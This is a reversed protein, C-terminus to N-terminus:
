RAFACGLAALGVCGGCIAAVCAAFVGPSTVGSIGGPIITAGAAALCPLMSSVCISGCLTKLQGLFCKGWSHAKQIKLNQDVFWEDSQNMDKGEPIVLYAKYRQNGKQAWVLTGKEKSNKGHIDFLCFVVESRTEKPGVQVGKFGWAAKEEHTREFGKERVEKMIVMWAKDQSFEKWMTEMEQPSFFTQHELKEGKEQAFGATCLLGATTIVVLMCVFRNM